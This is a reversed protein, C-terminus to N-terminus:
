IGRGQYSAILLPPSKGLPACWPVASPGRGWVYGRAAPGEGGFSTSPDSNILLFTRSPAASPSGSRGARGWHMRRPWVAEPLSPPGTEPATAKTTKILQAGGM